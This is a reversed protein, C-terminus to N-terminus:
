MSMDKASNEDNGIMARALTDIVILAIEGQHHEEIEQCLATIANEDSFILTQQAIYVGADEM